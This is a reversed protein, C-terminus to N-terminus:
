RMNVKRHLKLTKRKDFTNIKMLDIRSVRNKSSSNIKNLFNRNELEADFIYHHEITTFFREIFSVVKEEDTQEIIESHWLM